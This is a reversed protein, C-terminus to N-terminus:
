IPRIHSAHYKKEEEAELEATPLSVLCFLLGAITGQLQLRGLSISLPRLLENLLLQRHYLKALVLGCQPQGDNLNAQHAQCSM